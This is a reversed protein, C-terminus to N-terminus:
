RRADLLIRCMLVESFYTPNVNKVEKISQIPSKVKLNPTNEPAPPKPIDLLERVKPNKMIVTQGVSIFNNTCWYVFLSTPMHMLLPVMAVGLGRMVMNFTKKQEMQVGEQGLEIMILFSAANVIPLAVYPDAITLNEFWATGGSALAPYYTGMDQLAFFFALFVPLQFFPWLVSLFPNVKYKAFLVKMENAYRQKVQIDGAHPDNNMADQLKQMEPRMAAMRATGQLTKVAIPLLFVRTVVTAAVIAEWYPMGFYSHLFDISEMVKGAVLGPAETNTVAVAADVINTDVINQVNEVATVIKDPINGGEPVGESFNRTAIFQFTPVARKGVKGASSAAVQRFVVSGLRRSHIMM